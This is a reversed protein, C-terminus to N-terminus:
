CTTIAREAVQTRNPLALIKALSSSPRSFLISSTRHRITAAAQKPLLLFQRFTVTIGAVVVSGDEKRELAELATVANAPDNDRETGSYSGQPAYPYCPSRASEQTRRM